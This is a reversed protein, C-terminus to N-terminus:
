IKIVFTSGGGHTDKVFIQGKHMDVIEKAICLGLGFHDKKTRSKEVRYFHEFIKEKEEDPIGPGTDVICIYHYNEKYYAQYTVKGGSPTYSLANDALIALLQIIKNANCDCLPMSENSLEISLSIKKQKAIHEFAEFSNLVITELECPEIDVKQNSNGKNTLTLMDNILHTMRTAESEIIQYFDPEGDAPPIIKKKMASLCSLIVALPTRFEHSTAAIFLKQREQSEVVPKLLRKVLHYSFCYLLIIAVINIAVFLARQKYIQTYVAKLPSVIFVELVGQEKPLSGYCVYYDIKPFSGKEKYVFETHYNSYLTDTDVEAIQKYYSKIDNYLLEKDKDKSINGFLLSKQNDEIFIYFHNDSELQSLWSHSVINQNELNSIITKVNTQFSNFNNKKLNSEAVFLYAITLLCLILATIGTCLLTLQLRVKKFITM